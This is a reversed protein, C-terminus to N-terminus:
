NNRDNKKKRTKFSKPDVNNDLQKLSSYLLNKEESPVEKDWPLEDNFKLYINQKEKETFISQNNKNKEINLISKIFKNNNTLKTNKSPTFNTNCINPHRGSIRILGDNKYRALRYYEDLVLLKEQNKPQSEELFNAVENLLDFIGIIIKKQYVIEYHKIIKSGRKVILLHEHSNKLGENFQYFNTEEMKLESFLFEEILTIINKSIKVTPFKNFPIIKIHPALIFLINQYLYVYRKLLETKAQEKTMTKLVEQYGNVLPIINQSEDFLIIPEQSYSNIKIKYKHNLINQYNNKSIFISIDYNYPYDDCEGIVMKYIIDNEKLKSKGIFDLYWHEPTWIHNISGM